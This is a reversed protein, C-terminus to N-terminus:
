VTVQGPPKISRQETAPFWQSEHSCEVVTIEWLLIFCVFSYISEFAFLIMCHSDWVTKIHSHNLLRRMDDHTSCVSSKWLSLADITSWKLLLEGHAARVAVSHEKHKLVTNPRFDLAAATRCVDGSQGVADSYCGCGSLSSTSSPTSSSSVYILSHWPNSHHCGM